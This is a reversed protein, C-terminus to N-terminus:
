RRLNYVQIGVYDIYIYATAAARNIQIMGFDMIQTPVSQSFVAEAGDDVSIYVSGNGSSRIRVKHWNGDVVPLLSLAQTAGNQGVAIFNTDGLSTDYRLGLFESTSSPVTGQANPPLLGVYFGVNSTTTLQFSAIIDFATVSPNFLGAGLTGDSLFYAGGHASAAEGNGIQVIGIHAPDTSPVGQWVGTSYAIGQGWWSNEAAVQAGGQGDWLTTARIVGTFDEWFSYTNPDCRNVKMSSASQPTALGGTYNRQPAATSGFFPTAAQGTDQVPVGPQAGTAIRGASGTPAIRYLNYSVAGYSPFNPPTIINYNTSSLAANGTSISLSPGVQTENGNADVCSFAYTYNTTGATGATAVSVPAVPPPIQQIQLGGVMASHMVITGSVGIEGTFSQTGSFINNGSFVATGTITPSDSLVLSGTGTQAPLRTLPITGSVVASADIAIAQQSAATVRGKGDVTLTVTNAKDGFTGTSTNVTALTLATSGAASTTADGGTFQPLRAASLTGSSINSANTTDTTASPALGPLNAATLSVAGTLGNVSLVESAIGDLKEWKGGSGQVGTYIIWDGVNWQSTGDITTTGAVSVVYFQGNTGTGSTLAPTNTSADWTSIYHLAGVVSSPLQSLPVYGSSDLAAYGNAVGKNATSEAGSVQAVPIAIAQSSVSTVRGKGDVTLTLSNAASGYTGPVNNVTALTTVGSGNVSTVDGSLAPLRATSLYGTTIASADLAIAQAAAATVRGKGDVTITLSESANGFTGPATNVSALVLSASGAASTVDGGTFAPLRAAALTGSSINSANTTDTTASAALGPLNAATLSVAGTLGNVSLVESAIGDLKEWKGGSGQVGTYIIWDGVNWQSTGDITTTGAVSVVYFQGNTGTGSILAPTNTSANWTSVYHLAGVVSSPLQSLPVYGSSDLAAYGNAVGKNATSEAGSVQAVPIAIPVSSIGTVLGKANVTVAVNNTASGYTGVDTNVSALALATTGAVSTADGTFAPMAAAPVTGTTLNSANGIGALQTALGTIDGIGLVRFTPAAAAGSAPGALVASVAQDQLALTITGSNTVPGGTSGFIPSASGDVVNVSTVTGNSGSTPEWSTWGAGTTSDPDTTNNAVTNLWLGSGDAKSLIAGLAYGGIFSSTGADYTPYQGAQIAACYASIMYLIGNFDSGAPPIGNSSLAVFTLPPFGDNFSARGPESSTVSANPIITKTGNIAFPQYIPTPTAVPM